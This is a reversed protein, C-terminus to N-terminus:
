CTSATALFFHYRIAWYYHQNLVATVPPAGIHREWRMLARYIPDSLFSFMRYLSHIRKLLRTRKGNEVFQQRLETFIWCRALRFDQRNV